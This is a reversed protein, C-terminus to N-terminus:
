HCSQRFLEDNVEACGSVRFSNRALATREAAMTRVMGFLHRLIETSLKARSGEGGYFASAAAYMWEPKSELRCQLKVARRLWLRYLPAKWRKWLATAHSSLAAGESLACLPVLRVEAERVAVRDPRWSLSTNHVRYFNLPAPDWVLDCGVAAHLIWLFWDQAYKWDGVFHPMVKKTASAPLFVSPTNIINHELLVGLTRPAPLVEPMQLFRPQEQVPKSNEDIVTPPGHIVANPHDEATALRRQIFDPKLVDDAGPHCWYKGRVQQILTRTADSVGRNQPHRTFRFRSDTLYTSIVAATEDSSGDDLLLVEFDRFTQQRISDCLEPLFRAANYAPVVISVLPTM